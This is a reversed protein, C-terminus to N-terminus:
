WLHSLVSQYDASVPRINRNIRHIKSPHSVPKPLDSARRKSLSPTQTYAPHKRCLATSSIDNDQLLRTFAKTISTVSLRLIWAAASFTFDSKFPRPLNMINLELLSSRTILITIRPWLAKEVMKTSMHDFNIPGELSVFKKIQGNFTSANDAQRWWSVCNWLFRFRTIRLIAILFRLRWRPDM